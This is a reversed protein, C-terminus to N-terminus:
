RFQGLGIGPQLGHKEIAGFAGGVVADEIANYGLGLLAKRPDIKDLNSAVANVMCIVGHCNTAAKTEEDLADYMIEWFDKVESARHLAKEVWSGRYRGPRSGQAKPMYKHERTYPPPPGQIDPRSGGSAPPQGTEGPPHYGRDRVGDVNALRSLARVPVRDTQLVLSWSETVWEIPTAVGPRAVPNYPVAAGGPFPRWWTQEMVFRSQAIGCGAINFSEGIGMWTANAPITAFGTTSNGLTPANGSWGCFSEAQSQPTNSAFSAAGIGCSGSTITTSCPTKTWGLLNYGVPIEPTVLQANFTSLLDLFRLAPHLRPLRYLPRGGKLPLQRMPNKMATHPKRKSLSGGARKGAERAKQTSTKYAPRPRRVPGVGTDVGPIWFGGRYPFGKGQFDCYLGLREPPGDPPALTFVTEKTM